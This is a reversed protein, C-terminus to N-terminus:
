IMGLTLPYLIHETHSNLDLFNTLTDGHFGGHGCIGVNKKDACTLYFNQAIHGAELLALKWAREGYKYYSKDFFGCLIIAVNTTSLLEGFEAQDYLYSHLTFNENRLQVLENTHPSYYYTGQDLGCVDKVLLYAEVSYLAGGSPYVRRTNGRYKGNGEKIIGMSRQLLESLVTLPMSEGSYVRSSRRTQLTCQLANDDTYNFPIMKIRKAGVFLKNERDFSQKVQHTLGYGLFAGGGTNLENLTIQTLDERGNGKLYPTVDERLSIIM